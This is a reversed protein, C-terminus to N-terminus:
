VAFIGSNWLFRGSALYEAATAADPKEVFAEVYRASGETGTQALAKGTRIYGYGTEAATPPVGFTVVLGQGALAAGKEVAARFAAPDTIVHDSPMVLLVPDDSTVAHVAALTLAPATGRGIPELVIAKPRAGIAAAQEAVLFRHTENCIVLPQM